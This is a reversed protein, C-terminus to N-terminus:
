WPSMNNGTAIFILDRMLIHNYAPCRKVDFDDDVFRHGQYVGQERDDQRNQHDQIHHDRRPIRGFDGGINGRFRLREPGHNSRRQDKRECVYLM